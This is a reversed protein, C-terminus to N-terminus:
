DIVTKQSSTHLFFLGYLENETHGLSNSTSTKRNQDREVLVTHLTKLWFPNHVTFIFWFLNAINRPNQSIFCGRLFIQGKKWTCANKVNHYLVCSKSSCTEFSINMLLRFSFYRWFIFTPSFFYTLTVMKGTASSRLRM